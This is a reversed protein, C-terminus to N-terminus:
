RSLHSLPLLLGPQALCARSWLQVRLRRVCCTARRDCGSWGVGESYYYYRWGTVRNSMTDPKCETKEALM